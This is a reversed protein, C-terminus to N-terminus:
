QAINFHQRPLHINNITHRIRKTPPSKMNLLLIGGFSKPLTQWANISVTKKNTPCCNFNKCILERHFVKPPPMTKTRTINQAIINPMAIGYIVFLIENSQIRIMGKKKKDTEPVIATIPM